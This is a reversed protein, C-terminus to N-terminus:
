PLTRALRYYKTVPSASTDTFTLLGRSSTTSLAVPTITTWTGGAFSTRSQVTYSYGTEGHWNMTASSGNRVISKFSPKDEASASITWDDLLMWNNKEAALQLPADIFWRAQVSGFDKPTDTRNTFVAGDVVQVSGVSASWRNTLYNVRIHVEQAENYEVPIGTNAYDVGDNRATARYIFGRGLDFTLGGLLKDAQNYLLLEFDDKVGEVGNVTASETLGMLCYFGVVPKGAAVPDPGVKRGLRVFNTTSGTTAFTPKFYGLAATKGLGPVLNNDIGNCAAASSISSSTSLVWGDTGAWTGNGETFADFGTEYLVEGCAPGSFSLLAM